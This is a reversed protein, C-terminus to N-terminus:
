HTEPAHSEVKKNQFLDLAMLCAGVCIASDAVNFSPWEYSGLFVQLFDTVAGKLIRDYLNGAAGGLVLALATRQVLSALQGARTAQWLMWCIMALVGLSAVVLVLVRVTEPATNLMGFAAGRNRTHVINFVDPIVPYTDWYGVKSEVLWKTWRDLAFIFGAILSASLRPQM